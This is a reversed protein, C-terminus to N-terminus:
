RVWIQKYVTGAFDMHLELTEGKANTALIEFHRKKREVPESPTFGAERALRVADAPGIPRKDSVREPDHDADEIEDLRGFRDLSVIVDKGAATRGSIEIHKPHRVPEGVATVGADKLVRLMSERDAGFRADAAPGRPEPARADPPPPPPPAMGVQGLGAGPPPPPPAAFVVDGNERQIKRADFTKDRPLGTVTVTEGSTVSLSQGGPGTQILIRGSGDDLVFKDGFVDAVKGKITVGDASLQGIPVQSSAVGALAIGGATTLALLLRHRSITRVLGM